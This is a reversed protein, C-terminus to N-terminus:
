VGKNQKVNQVALTKGCFLKGNSFYITSKDIYVGMDQCYNLYIEYYFVSYNIFAHIIFAVVFAIFMQSQEFPSLKKKKEM